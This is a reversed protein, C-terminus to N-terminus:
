NNDLLSYSDCLLQAGAQTQPRIEAFGQIHPYMQTRGVRRALQWHGYWSALQREAAGCICETAHLFSAM